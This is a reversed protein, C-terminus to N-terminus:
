LLVDSTATRLMKSFHSDAQELLVERRGFEVIHGQDLIMINDVRQVTALRHAIIIGTREHLLRTVADDLLHETMPDLRSSAEDLVILSADKLFVRTFALLQAEGASLSAANSGLQTDLGNPLKRLWNDLGLLDFAELLRSDPISRNFFTINDRVSAQFIQVDQTVLGVRQRLSDLSAHQIPVGNIHIDGQQVDYLRLLLRVMTSKGSGTRGLLGLTEGAKLKFDIDQLIWEPSGDEYTDYYFNVYNFTVALAGSPIPTSGTQDLNSTTDFLEHIRLISADAAQLLEIQERIQSIPRSLQTFYNYILFVIGITVADQFFLYAGVGLAIISGLAFTADTSAWLTTAALRAKHWALMWHQNIEYLRRMFFARAGNAKIDERGALQENAFGYFEASQQRYEKFYPVALNRLSLMVVLAAVAFGLGALGAIPHAFFLAVVVGILLLGNGLIVIIFQSFFRSLANVDGDVREILEGSTRSKHFAMDLRLCHEALDARLENTATWGVASALYVSVVTLVQGIIAAGIYLLALTLLTQGETNAVIADIFRALIQPNILQFAIGTLLAVMLLIVRSRQPRLYTALLQWYRRIPIKM